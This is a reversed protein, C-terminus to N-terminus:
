EEVKALAVISQVILLHWSLPASRAKLRTRGCGPPVLGPVPRSGDDTSSAM